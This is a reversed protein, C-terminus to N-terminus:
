ASLLSRANPPALPRLPVDLSKTAQQRHSVNTRPREVARSRSAESFEILLTAWGKQRYQPFTVICALNYDDYSVKEKSFYALPWDRSPTADTIIYFIFGEVQSLSENAM